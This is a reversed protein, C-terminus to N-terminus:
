LSPKERIHWVSLVQSCQLRANRSSPSNLAHSSFRPLPLSFSTTKCQMKSKTRCMILSPSAQLSLSVLGPFQLTDDMFSPLIVQQAVLLGQAIHHANRKLLLVPKLLKRRSWKKRDNYQGEQPTHARSNTSDQPFSTMFSGQALFLM